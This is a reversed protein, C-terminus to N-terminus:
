RIPFCEGASLVCISRLGSWYRSVNPHPPQRDYGPLFNVDILVLSEFMKARWPPIKGIFGEVFELAGRLQGRLQLSLLPLDEDQFMGGRGSTMSGDISHYKRTNNKKNDEVKGMQAM